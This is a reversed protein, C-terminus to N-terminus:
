YSKCINFRKKELNVVDEYVNMWIYLLHLFSQLCELAAKPSLSDYKHYCEKINAYHVLFTLAEQLRLM